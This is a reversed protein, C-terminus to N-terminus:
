KYHPKPFPDTGVPNPQNTRLQKGRIKSGVPSSDVTKVSGGVGGGMKHGIKGQAGMGYNHDGMGNCKAGNKLSGM